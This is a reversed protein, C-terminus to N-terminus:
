AAPGAGPQGPPPRAGPTMAARIVSERVAEAVTEPPQDPLEAPLLEERAIAWSAPAEFGLRVKHDDAIWVLCVRIVTGDPGTLRVWEQERRSLVLV